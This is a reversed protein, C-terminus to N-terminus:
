DRSFASKFEGRRGIGVFFFALRLALDAGFRFATPLLASSAFLSASTPLFFFFFARKVEQHPLLDTPASASSLENSLASSMHAHQVRALAPKCVNSVKRYM